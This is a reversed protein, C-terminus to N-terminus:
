PALSLSPHLKFLWAVLSQTRHRHRFLDGGDLSTDRAALRLSLPIMSWKNRSASLNVVLSM